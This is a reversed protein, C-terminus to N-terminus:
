MMIIKGLSWTQVFIVGSIALYGDVAKEADRGWIRVFMNSLTDKFDSVMGDRFGFNLM